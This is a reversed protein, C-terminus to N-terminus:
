DQIRMWWLMANYHHCVPCSPEVEAEPWTLEKSERIVGCDRCKYMDTVIRREWRIGAVRDRCNCGLDAALTGAEQFPHVNFSRGAIYVTFGSNDENTDKPVTDGAQLILWGENYGAVGKGIIEVKM